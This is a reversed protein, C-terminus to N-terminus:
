LVLFKLGLKSANPHKEEIHHKLIITNNENLNFTCNSVPCVFRQERLTTSGEEDNASDDDDSIEDSFDKCEKLVQFVGKIRVILAKM